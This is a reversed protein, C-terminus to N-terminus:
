FYSVDKSFDYPEYKQGNRYTELHAFYNFANFAWIFPNLGKALLRCSDSWRMQSGYRKSKKKRPVQATM